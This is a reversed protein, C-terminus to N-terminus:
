DLSIELHVTQFVSTPTRADHIVTGFTQWFELAGPSKADTHLYLRRLNPNQRVFEIAHRVLRTALGRRQHGPDVYVRFLQATVGDPFQEALWAPHPPTRPGRAQIATTAVVEEDRVAVWLRQDPHQLYTKEPDIVDDHHEPLYGCGLVNYFTDLMIRRAAPMDQARAERIAYETGVHTPASM